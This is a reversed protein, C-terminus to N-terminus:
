YGSIYEPGGIISIKDQIRNYRIVYDSTTIIMTSDDYELIGSVAAEPLKKQVENKDTFHMVIKDTGPDIVYVGNMASAIWVYGKSDVIIRGVIGEPIATFKALGDEFKTKGKEATWKFVGTSQMGLWLNGNKDEAI